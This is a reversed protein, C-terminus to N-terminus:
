SFVEWAKHFGSGVQELVLRDFADGDGLAAAIEEFIVVHANSLEPPTSGWTKWTRSRVVLFWPPVLEVEPSETSLRMPPGDGIGRYNLIATMSGTFRPVKHTSLALPGLFRETFAACSLRDLGLKAEMPLGRNGARCLVDVGHAGDFRVTKESLVAPALKANPTFAFQPALHEADLVSLLSCSSHLKCSVSGLLENKALGSLLGCLVVEGVHHLSLTTSM